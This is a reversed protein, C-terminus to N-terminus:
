QEVKMVEGLIEYIDAMMKSIIMESQLYEAAKPDAAIIKYLDQIQTMNDMEVEEGLLQKTQYEIQKKQFDDLMSKLSENNNIEMRLRKYNKFEDSDKIARALQHVSDYVNM